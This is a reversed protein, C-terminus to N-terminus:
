STRWGGRWRAGPRSASPRCWRTRALHAPGRDHRQARPWSPSRTAAEDPVPRESRGAGDRRAGAASAAGRDSGVGAREAARRDGARGGGPAAGVPAARWARAGSDNRPRVLVALQGKPEEAFAVDAGVLDAVDLLAEGDLFFGGVLLLPAHQSGVNARAVVALREAYGAGSAVRQALVGKAADVARDTAPLGQGAPWTSSGAIRGRDDIAQLSDLGHRAALAEWAIEAASDAVEAAVGALRAAARSRLRELRAYVAARAAGLRRSELEDLAREVARTTTWAVMGISLAVIGTTWCFLRSRLSM